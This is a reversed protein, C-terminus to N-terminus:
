NGAPREHIDFRGAIGTRDIAERDMAMGLQSCLNAILKFRGELLSQMMSGYMGSHPPNGAPKPAIDYRTSDM